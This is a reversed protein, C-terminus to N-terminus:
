AADGGLLAPGAAERAKAAAILDGVHAHWKEAHTLNAFGLTATDDLRLAVDGGRTSLTTKTPNGFPDDDPILTVLATITPM